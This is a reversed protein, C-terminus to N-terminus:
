TEGVALGTKPSPHFISIVPTTERPHCGSRKFLLRNCSSCVQDPSEAFDKFLDTNLHVPVAVAPQVVEEAGDAQRGGRWRGRGRGRGMEPGGVRGVRGGIPGQEMEDHVPVEVAPQVLEESGEGQRRGRGRGRGQGRGREPGGGRGRRGGIPGQQV